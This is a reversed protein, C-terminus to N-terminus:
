RVVHGEVVDEEPSRAARPEAREWRLFADTEGLLRGAIWTIVLADDALGILPLFAEPVLDIPSLTYLVALAVMGLQGRTTGRYRGSLTASVLRPVARLREGLGPEGARTAGRLARVLAVFASTRGVRGM